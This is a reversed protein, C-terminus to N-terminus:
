SSCMSIRQRIRNKEGIAVADQKAIQLSEGSMQGKCCFDIKQQIRNKEGIATANQIAIQQQLAEVDQQLGKCFKVKQQIRNKEGVSTANQEAQQLSRAQTVPSALTVMGLLAISLFNFIRM